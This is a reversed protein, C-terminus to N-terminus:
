PRYGISELARQLHPDGPHAALGEAWTAAAGELDGVDSRAVGLNRYIEADRLGMRMGTEWYRIAAEVNGEGYSRRALSRMKEPLLTFPVPQRLDPQQLYAQAVLDLVDPEALSAPDQLDTLAAGAWALAATELDGDAYRLRGIDVLSRAHGRVLDTLERERGLRDLSERLMGYAFVNWPEIRLTARAAPVVGEYRSAEFRFTALNYVVKLADPDSQAARDLVDIARDTLDVARFALAVRVARNHTRFYDAPESLVTNEFRDISADTRNVVLWPVTNLLTFAAAPVGISRIGSSPARSLADALLIALPFAVYAILDWDLSGLVFDFVFAALLGPVAFVLLLRGRLDETTRGLERPLCIALTIAAPVALLIGNLREWANTFTLAAYNREATPIAPLTVSRVVEIFGTVWVSVLAVVAVAALVTLRKSSLRGDPFLVLLLPAPVAIAALPHVACAACAILLSAFRFAPRRLGLLATWVVVLMLVPLAAYVEVYGAYLQVVGSGALLVAAILRSAPSRGIERAVRFSLWFFPLGLLTATVQYARHGSLDLASAVGAVLQIYLRGSRHIIGEDIEGARVQGDGLFPYKQRILWLVATLLVAILLDVAPAPIRDPRLRKLVDPLAVQSASVSLVAAFLAYAVVAVTSPLYALFQVGWARAGAPDAFANVLCHLVAASAFVVAPGRPSSVLSM